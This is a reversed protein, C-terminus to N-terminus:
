IASCNSRAAWELQDWFSCTAALFKWRQGPVTSHRGTAVLWSHLLARRQARRGQVVSKDGSMPAELYNIGASIADAHLAQAVDPDITSADIILSGRPAIALIGAQRYMVEKVADPSPLALIVTSCRSAVEGISSAQRAGERELLALRERSQDFIILEKKAKLLNCAYYYGVNGVGIIGLQDAM